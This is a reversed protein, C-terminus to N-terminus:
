RESLLRLAKIPSAIMSPLGVCNNWCKECTRAAARVDMAGATRLLVHLDYNSDQLNGISEEFFPCPRVEGKASIFVVQDGAVCPVGASGGRLRRLMGLLFLRELFGGLGAIKYRRVIERVVEADSGQLELRSTEAPKTGITVLQRTDFGGPRGPSASIDRVRYFRNDMGFAVIFTDSEGAFRGIVQSSKAINLSSVTMQASVRLNKYRKRLTQLRGWTDITQRWQGCGRLEDQDQGIGDISLTTHLMIRKNEVLLQEILDATRDPNIGNLPINVLLLNHCRSVLGGV